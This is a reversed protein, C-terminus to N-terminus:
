LVPFDCPRVESARERLEELPTLAVLQAASRETLLPAPTAIPCCASYFSAHESPQQLITATLYAAVVGM